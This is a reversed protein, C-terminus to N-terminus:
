EELLFLGNDYVDIQLNDSIYRIFKEFDQLIFDKLPIDNDFYDIKSSNISQYVLYIRDYIYDIYSDLYIDLELNKYNIKYIKLETNIYDESLSLKEKKSILDIFDDPLSEISVKIGLIAICPM